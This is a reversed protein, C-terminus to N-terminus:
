TVPHGRQVGQQTDRVVLWLRVLHSGWERCLILLSFYLFTLKNNAFVADGTCKMCLQVPFFRLDVHIHLHMYLTLLGM